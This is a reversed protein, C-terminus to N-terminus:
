FISQGLTASEREYNDKKDEFLWWPENKYEGTFKLVEGIKPILYHVGAQDAANVFRKVPENWPHNSLVFKGWHVPMVKTARLDIAAKVTQEPFMHIQPWYEGYQGCELFAIDFPGFKDGIKRFTKDYGSDGGIFINFQDIELVFSAWLTQARKFSRGSFHRSPTATLRVNSQVEHNEWWDLETIKDNGVGWIELHAGVGLSTVIASVKSELSNISQYDLHDYHDHTLILLDIKPLDEANFHDAGKFAKGFFRFPSANGSFVPDVLVKFGNIQIFYSSHGFWVVLPDEGELRSLYSKVNPIEESPRVSSPRLIMKKLIRLISVDNPNVSTPVENKFSGDRYHPSGKIRQLRNGQPLKGFRKVM